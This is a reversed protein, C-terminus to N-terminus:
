NANIAAGRLTINGSARAVIEAGEIMVKGDQKIKIVASGSTIIVEKDSTTDIKDAAHIIFKKTIDINKDGGVQETANKGINITLDDTIDETASKGVTQTFNEGISVTENKGITIDANDGISETHNKAVTLNKNENITEDHNKQVILTKNENITENHDKGVSITKNEGITESQNKAVNKTRDNGVDLTEDHGITQNKDNEIAITWNKQGHLYVEEEGAKDEFKLENFGGGGPSSNSKITSVTKNAPLDYPPKNRAHYVRGTIIPRDPDGEIFDVIVEQGIRPIHMSGWQVGAWGQSVRIWCSSQENNQGERDWHFQVKVRGHEDTYIEEGSPGTVIATQVGHVIPKPTKLAPRIVTSVPVCLFNNGYSFATGPQYQDFVQPQDGNHSVGIILYKQNFSEVDHDKLEFYFGPCLRACNSQGYGKEKFMVAQELRIKVFKRGPAELSYRGPYDYLELDSNEDAAEEVNLPMLPKQFNFDKLTSKGSTMQKSFTFSNIFDEYAAMNGGYNFMLVPEKIPSYGNAANTKFIIKHKDESHEFFYYIGEEELLRSIFDFDTERYQVCYERSECPSILNFALKDGIIGAEQLLQKVIDETTKNQFIRSNRKLKLLNLKPVLSAKYMYFEAYKGVQIFEDIIGHFYRYLDEHEHYVTLVGEKGLVDDFNINESFALTLDVNYPESIQEEANFDVVKLKKGAVNFIFQTVNADILPM